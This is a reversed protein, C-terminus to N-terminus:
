INRLFFFINVINEYILYVVQSNLVFVFLHSLKVYFIFEFLFMGIYTYEYNRLVIFKFKKLSKRTMIIFM